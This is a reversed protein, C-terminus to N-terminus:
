SILGGSNFLVQAILRIIVLASIMLLLGVAAHTLTARADAIAKEDGRALMYRIGGWLLMLFFVVGGVALLLLLIQTVLGGFSQYHQDQGICTGTVLRFACSLNFQNGNTIAGPLNSTGFFNIGFVKEFVGSLSAAGLVIVLGIVSGTMTGRAGDAAKPDGRSILYRLAGITFMVVAFLAVLAFVITLGLTLIDGLSNFRTVPNPVNTLSPDGALVAQYLYNM